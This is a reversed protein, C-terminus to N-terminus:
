VIFNALLLDAFLSGGALVVVQDQALRSDM